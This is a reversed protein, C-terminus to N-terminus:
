YMTYTLRALNEYNIKDQDGSKGYLDEQVVAAFNDFVLTENIKYTVQLYSWTKRAPDYVTKRSGDEGIEEIPNYTNYYEVFSTLSLGRVTNDLDLKVKPTYIVEYTTGKGDKVKYGTTKGDDDKEAALGFGGVAREESASTRAEADEKQSNFQAMADVRFSAEITGFGVNLASTTVVPAIGLDGRTGPGGGQPLHLDLFPTFTFYTSKFASVETLLRPRRQTVQQTGDNAKNVALTLTNAVVDDFMNVVFNGRVQTTVENTDIDARDKGDNKGDIYHRLQIDATQSSILDLPNQVKKTAAVNEQAQAGTAVATGAIITAIVKRNLM